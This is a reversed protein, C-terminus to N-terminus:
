PPFDQFLVSNIVNALSWSNSKHVPIGTITSYIILYTAIEWFAGLVCWKCDWSLFHLSRICFHETESRKIVCQFWNYLVTTADSSILSSLFYKILLESSPCKQLTLINTIFFLAKHVYKKQSQLEFFIWLMLM